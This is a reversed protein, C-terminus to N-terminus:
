SYTPLIQIRWFFGVLRESGQCLKFSCPAAILLNLALYKFAIRGFRFFKRVYCRTTVRTAYIQPANSSLGLKTM